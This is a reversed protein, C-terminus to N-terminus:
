HRRACTLGSRNDGQAIEQHTAVPSFSNQKESVANREDGLSNASELLMQRIRRRYIQDSFFIGGPANINGGIRCHHVENMMGLISLPRETGPVEVKDDDIFRM